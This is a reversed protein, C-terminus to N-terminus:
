TQSYKAPQSDVLLVAGTASNALIRVAGSLLRIKAFEAVISDVFSISNIDFRLLLFRFLFGGASSTPALVGLAGSSATARSIGGAVFSGVRLILLGAITSALNAAGFSRSSGVSASGSFTAALLSAM